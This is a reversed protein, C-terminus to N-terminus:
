LDKRIALNTMAKMFVHVYVSPLCESIFRGISGPIFSNSGKFSQPPIDGNSLQNLKNLLIENTGEMKWINLQHYRPSPSSSSSIGM